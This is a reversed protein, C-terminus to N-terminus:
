SNCSQSECADPTSELLWRFKQEARKHESVLSVM